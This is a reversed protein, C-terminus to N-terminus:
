IQKSKFYIFLSAEDIKTQIYKYNFLVECKQTNAPIRQAPYYALFYFTIIPDIHYCLDNNNRSKVDFYYLILLLTSISWLTVSVTKHYRRRPQNELFQNM